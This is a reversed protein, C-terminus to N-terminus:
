YYFYLNMANCEILVKILADGKFGNEYMKVVEELIPEIKSVVENLAKDSKRNLEKVCITAGSFPTYSEWIEDRRVPSISFYIGRRINEHTFKNFGGKNYYVKIKLDTDDAMTTKFYKQM